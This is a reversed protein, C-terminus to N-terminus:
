CRSSFSQLASQQRIKLCIVFLVVPKLVRDVPRTALAITTGAAAAVVTPVLPVMLVGSLLAGPQLHAVNGLVRWLGSNPDHSSTPMPSAPSRLWLRLTSLLSPSNVTRPVSDGILDYLSYTYEDVVPEAGVLQLEIGKPTFRVLVCSFVRHILRLYCLEGEPLERICFVKLGDLLDDIPLQRPQADFYDSLCALTESDIKEQQTWQIIQQMMWADRQRAKIRRWVRALEAGLIGRELVDADVDKPYRLRLRKALRRLILEYSPGNLGRFLNAFVHGGMNHISQAMREVYARRYLERDDASHYDLYAQSRTFQQVQRRRICTVLFDLEEDSASMLVEILSDDKPSTNM